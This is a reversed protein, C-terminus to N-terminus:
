KSRAAFGTRGTHASSLEMVGHHKIMWRDGRRREDAEGGSRMLEMTKHTATFFVYRIRSDGDDVKVKDQIRHMIM